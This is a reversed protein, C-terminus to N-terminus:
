THWSIPRHGNSDPVGPASAMSDSEYSTKEVDRSGSDTTTTAVNMMVHARLEPFFEEFDTKLSNYNRELEIVAKGLAVERRFRRQIRELTLQIGAIERYCGLWNEARMQQLHGHVGVPLRTRQADFSGYVEKLFVELPQRWYDDWHTSLFHDYFVDMLIPAFRRHSPSVRRVSRRVVPHADTFADIRRHCAIGAHYIAPVGALEAATLLDPLLNGIRFAPSPESLVLHALWNM